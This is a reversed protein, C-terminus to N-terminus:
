EPAVPCDPRKLSPNKSRRKCVEVLEIDDEFPSANQFGFIVATRGARSIREIDAVSEALEILDSNQEFLRNWKGIVKLTDRADEWISLTVHVCGLGGRRWEEFRAREPKSHQMADVLSGGSSRGKGKM